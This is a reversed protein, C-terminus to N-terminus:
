EAQELRWAPLTVVTRREHLCQWGSPQYAGQLEQPNAVCINALMLTRRIM